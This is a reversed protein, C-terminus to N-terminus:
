STVASSKWSELSFSYMNRGGLFSHYTLIRVSGSSEHGAGIFLLACLLPICKM